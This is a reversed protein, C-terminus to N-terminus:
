RRLFPFPGCISELFDFEKKFVDMHNMATQYSEPLVWFDFPVNAGNVSTYNDEILNFEAVYISVNYNNIPTSVFWNYTTSNDETDIQAIFKGNAICALPKPVTFSLAMSDPEDSPHDKCPWWIDAGSSECAVGIWPKRSGTEDWVFGDDWPPNNAIRPSGYYYVISEIVDGTQLEANPTIIIEGGNFQYEATTFESNNVSLLISDIKFQNELDLVFVNIPNLIEAKCLLSGSISKTTPSITLDLDYFLVDYAAQEASLKGGSGSVVSYFSLSIFLIPALIFRSVTM